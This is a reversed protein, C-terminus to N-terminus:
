TYEKDITIVCDYGDSINKIETGIWKILLLEDRKSKINSSKVVVDFILTRKENIGVIKLGHISEIIDNKYLTSELLKKTSIIIDCDTTIPDTHVVLHINLDRLVRKEIDDAIDHIEIASLKDPVEIHISALSKHAGYNHVILDHVGVVHTNELSAKKISSVLEEPPAEGLLPNITDKVINLGSILLGISVGVGIYGDIPLDTYNSSIFSILVCTSIFVDGKADLASAKLASSNIKEGITKNFRSLWLKIFISITLVIMSITEFTVKTPNLIKDFSTKLFELGFTLVIFAVVLASLYEIRGHGFPHEEDAPKSAIKFGLITIISSTSDFFNNFADAIISISSSALGILLKTLFLLINSIIGVIGALTGYNQRVNVNSINESNKIFKKIIFDTLINFM